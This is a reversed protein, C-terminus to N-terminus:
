PFTSTHMPIALGLVKLLGVHMKSIKLCIKLIYLHLLTVQHSNTKTIKPGGQINLRASDSVM